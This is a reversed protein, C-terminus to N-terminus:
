NTKINMLKGTESPLLCASTEGDGKGSSTESGSVVVGFLSLLLCSTILFISLKMRGKM